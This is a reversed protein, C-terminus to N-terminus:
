LAIRSNSLPAALLQVGRLTYIKTHSLSKSLFLDLTGFNIKKKNLLTSSRVLNM